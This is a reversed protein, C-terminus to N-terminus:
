HAGGRLRSEADVLFAGQAVVRDGESLGSM